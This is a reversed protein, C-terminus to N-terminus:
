KGCISEMEYIITTYIYNENKKYLEGYVNEFVKQECIAKIQEYESESMDDIEAESYITAIEANVDTTYQESELYVRMPETLYYTWKTNLSNLLNQLYKNTSDGALTSYAKESLGEIINGFLQKYYDYILRNKATATEYGQSSDFSTKFTEKYEERSPVTGNAVPTATPSVTPTNTPTASPVTTSTTTPAKTVSTDDQEEKTTQKKSTSIKGTYNKVSIPYKKKFSKKRYMSDLTHDLNMKKSGSLFYKYTVPQYVMDTDDWTVDVHYWKGSIKVINWAHNTKAYGGVYRCPIGTETCLKYFLLAYGQCVTTGYELGEYATYLSLTDDYIINNAIYDHIKKIKGARNMGDLQLEELISKVDQNVKKLQAASERYVIQFQFIAKNNSYYPVEFSYSAINGYLYDFDDSTNKNDINWAQSFMKEINGNYVTKYSANLTITFNTKRANMYDHLKKMFQKKNSVVTSNTAMIQIGSTSIDKDKVKEGITVPLAEPQYASDKDVLNVTNPKTAALTMNGQMDMGSLAYVFCLVGACFYRFGKRQM